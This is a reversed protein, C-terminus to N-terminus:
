AEKYTASVVIQGDAAPMEFTYKNGDKKLELKTAGNMVTIEDLTYGKVAKVTLTVKDKYGYSKKDATIVGYGSEEIKLEYALKEFEHEVDVDAGPMKFTFVLGERTAEIEKDGNMVVMDGYTYGAEPKVTLTVLEDKAYTEKDATVTGGTSKAIKLEYHILDFASVVTVNGAPMTFTYNSGNKKTAIETDGSKVTLTKLEHQDNAPEVVLTVTAGKVYEAPNVSVTGKDATSNTIGVTYTAAEFASAVTVNAAPMKFSYTNAKGSVAECTVANNAADKVTLSNLVFDAAPTVTLTIVDNEKATTTNATVKGNSATLIKVDFTKADTKKFTAVINVNGKPMIFKGGSIEVSTNTTTNVVSLSELEYGSEPAVTLVIEDGTDGYVANATVKGGTAANTKVTYLARFTATVTVNSAPMTFKNNTVTVVAGEADKVVLKDLTYGTDPNPTLTIETNKGAVTASATLKGHTTAAINLTYGTGQVIASSGSGNGTEPTKDLNSLPADLKVYYLHVWGEATQGWTANGVKIYDLIEIKTGKTLSGVKAYNTGPNARVNVASANIITGTVGEGTIPADLKVYRLCIWGKDTLGWMDAGVKTTEYINVLTGKAYTGVQKNHTGAAARIRLTSCNVVRGTQVATVGGTTGGTSGSSGTDPLEIDPVSGSEVPIVQVYYLSVWGKETLGWTTNGVKQQLTIKVQEGRKYTGVKPNQTGPASRINLVDARIITGLATVQKADEEDEVIGATKYNTYQLAIWGLESKGWTHNGGKQVATLLLKQGKKYKGQSAYKTGPGVRNNVNDSTVTVTIPDILSEKEEYVVNAELGASVDIWGGKSLKGWKVGNSDIHEAVITLKDEGTVTKTKSGGPADYVDHSGNVPVYGSYDAAVGKITSDANLEGGNKQWHGYLTDMKATKTGLSTVPSGGEAKTYWGLFTYGSKSATAKVKITGTTDYGQASVAKGTSTVTIVAGDLNANFVVYKYNAPVSASYVGNLYLNAECLRRKMLGSNVKNSAKCYQAIAFLFTDGKADATVADRLVGGSTSMWSPGLNYTFSVLADFQQQNLKLNYTDIFANVDDEFGDLYQKLLETAQKETIGNKKYYELDSGSVGTGYGVSWQANDQIPYKIFGEFDKIFEIGKSSTDMASAASVSPAATCVLSLIIVLSLMLSIIRKM